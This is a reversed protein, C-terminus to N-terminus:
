PSVRWVRTCRSTPRDLRDDFFLAFLNPGLEVLAAAVRGHRSLTHFISEYIKQYERTGAAQRAVEEPADEDDHGSPELEDSPAPLEHGGDAESLARPAASAAPRDSDVDIAGQAALGEIIQVLRSEEFGTLATLDGVSLPTDLRSLM